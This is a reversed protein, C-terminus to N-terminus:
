KTERSRDDGSSLRARVLARIRAVEAKQDELTAVLTPSAPALIDILDGEDPRRDLPHIYALRGSSMQLTLGSPAVDRRSGAVCLLSGEAELATRLGALCRCLYRHEFVLRRDAVVAELRQIGAKVTIVTLTANAVSGDRQLVLREISSSEPVTMKHDRRSQEAALKPHGLVRGVLDDSLDRAGM